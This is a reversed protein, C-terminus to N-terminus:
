PPLLPLLKLTIVKLVSGRPLFALGIVPAVLVARLFYSIATHRYAM